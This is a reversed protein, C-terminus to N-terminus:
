CFAAKGNAIYTQREEFNTSLVDDPIAGAEAREKM